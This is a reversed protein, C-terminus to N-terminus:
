RGRLGSLNASLRDCDQCIPTQSVLESCAPLAAFGADQSEVLEEGDLWTGGSFMACGVQGRLDLLFFSGCVRNDQSTSCFRSLTRGQRAGWDVHRCGRPCWMGRRGLRIVVVWRELNGISTHTPSTCAASGVFLTGLPAVCLIAHVMGTDGDEVLAAFAVTAALPPHQFEVFEHLNLTALGLVSMQEYSAALFVLGFGGTSFLQQLGYPSYEENAKDQRASERCDWIGPIIIMAFTKPELYRPTNM